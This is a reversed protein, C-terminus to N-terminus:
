FDDDEYERYFCDECCPDFEGSSEIFGTYDCFNCGEGFCGPCEKSEFVWEIPIGCFVCTTERPYTIKEM